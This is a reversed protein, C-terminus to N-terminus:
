PIFISYHDGEGDTSTGLENEKHQNHFVLIIKRRQRRNPFAIDCCGVTFCLKHFTTAIQLFAWHLYYFDLFTFVLMEHDCQPILEKKVKALMLKGKMKRRGAGYLSLDVECQDCLALTFYKKRWQVGIKEIIRKNLPHCFLVLFTPSGLGTADVMVIGIIAWLVCNISRSCTGQEM